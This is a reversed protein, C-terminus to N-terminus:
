NLCQFEMRIMHKNGKPDKLMFLRAGVNNNSKSGDFFLIWLHKKADLSLSDLVLNRCSIDLNICNTVVVQSTHLIQYQKRLYTFPSPEIILNQFFSDFYNNGLTSHSFLVVENTDNLNTITHKM